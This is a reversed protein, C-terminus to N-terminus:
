PAYQGRFRTKPGGVVESGPSQDQTCGVSFGGRVQVLALVFKEPTKILTLSSRVFLTLRSSVAEEKLDLRISPSCPRLPAGEEDSM